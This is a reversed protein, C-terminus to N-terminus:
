KGYVKGKQIIGLNIDTSKISFWKDEFGTIARIADINEPIVIAESHVAIIMSLERDKVTVTDQFVICEYLDNRDRGSDRSWEFIQAISTFGDERNVLLIRPTKELVDIIYDRDVRDRFVIYLFQTHALTTPIAISYTAINIDPLVSKVDLEHHSPTPEIVVDNIPGRSYEKPDAGRRVIFVRVRDIQIDNILFSALIRLIATTNCSVIRVYRRNLAKEYNILSNFSVEAIEASEGGQFIAKVGHRDYFELKNKLGVGKPTADVVVDSERILDEITGAVDLGRKEFDKVRERHTYVRYGKEIAILAEYDPKLKAIGILKMDNQKTIADAIRKGITGYGIVGVRIM